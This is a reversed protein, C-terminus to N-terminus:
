IEFADIKRYESDAFYYQAPAGVVKADGGAVGLEGGAKPHHPHGHGVRRGHHHRRPCLTPGPSTLSVPFNYKKNKCNRNTLDHPM